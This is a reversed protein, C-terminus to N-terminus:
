QKTNYDMITVVISIQICLETIKAWPIEERLIFNPSLDMHIDDPEFLCLMSM